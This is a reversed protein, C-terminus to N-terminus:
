ALKRENDEHIWRHLIEPMEKILFTLITITGYTEHFTPKYNHHAINRRIEHWLVEIDPQKKRNQINHYKTYGLHKLQLPYRIPQNEDKRFLTRKEPFKSIIGDTVADIVEEMVNCSWLIALNFYGEDFLRPIFRGGDLSEFVNDLNPFEQLEKKWRKKEKEFFSDTLGISNRLSTRQGLIAITIVSLVFAFQSISLILLFQLLGTLSNVFTVFAFAETIVSTLLMVVASTFGMPYFERSFNKTPLGSILIVGLYLLVYVIVLPPMLLYNVVCQIVLGFALFLASGYFFSRGYLNKDFIADFILRLRSSM